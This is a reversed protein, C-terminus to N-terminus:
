EDTEVEAGCKECRPETVSPEGVGNVAITEGRENLRVQKSQTITQVFRQSGCENPCEYM